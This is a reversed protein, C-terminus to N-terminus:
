AASLSVLPAHADLFCALAEGHQAGLMLGPGVARADRNPVALVAEGRADLMVNGLRLASAAIGIVEDARAGAREMAEHTAEAFLEPQAAGAGAMIAEDSVALGIRRGGFDLGIAYSSM